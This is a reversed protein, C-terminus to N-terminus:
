EDDVTGGGPNDKDDVIREAIWTKNCYICTFQIFDFGTGAHMAYSIQLHDLGSTKSLHFCKQKM